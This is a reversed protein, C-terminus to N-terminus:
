FRFYIFPNYAGAALSLMCLILVAASCLYSGGCVVVSAFGKKHAIKSLHQRVPLSLVVGAALATIHLLDTGSTLLAMRRTDVPVAVYMHSIMSWAKAMSDARFIVFGTCVTVWVYVHRLIGMKETMKPNAAEISTILGHYLGWVVFTWDAGHWLGTCFFVIMRNIWTRAKGKRNGGLPFYLNERFWDTLSIHWRRWFDLMGTASYPSLFNERFHFGFMRGLGIAMDSYGSFDFYIQLMYAAAGLWATPLCLDSDPLAFVYDATQALTNALLVKKGLGFIFRRLGRAVDQPCVSRESIEQAIDRYRVIPGAILQPFFSIYMLVKGLSQEARIKGRGVDAIYGMAQFTFFSIGVPLSIDPVPLPYALFRNITEAAMAAYKYIGLMALDALLAAALVIKGAARGKWRGIVLAALHNWIACAVLLLVYVPEGYAYFLLSAVTLFLNKLRVSPMLCCILMTLPLFVSLFSLSSFVM